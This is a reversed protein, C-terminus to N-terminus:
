WWWALQSLHESLSQDLSDDCITRTRRVLSNPINKAYIKLIVPFGRYSITHQNITCTSKWTLMHKIYLSTLTTNGSLDYSIESEITDFRIGEERGIKASGINVIEISGLWLSESRQPFQVSINWRRVLEPTLSRALSRTLAASGALSVLLASCAFEHSTRTFSRASSRTCLLPGNGVDQNWSTRALQATHSRTTGYAFITM